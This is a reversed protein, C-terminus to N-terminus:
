KNKVYVLSIKDNYILNWESSNKLYDKLNNKQNNIKEEDLGMIYKDVWNLKIPKQIKLHVLKTKHLKLNRELIEEDFFDYYEQLLTHGRYKYQPLRGDIFLKKEPWAWIMYGGWGYNNFIKPNGFESNNKMFEIAQCPFSKCFLPSTFPDNTYNARILFSATAMLIVIVLYCNIFFNKKNLSLIKQPLAFETSLFQIMLPLSVMFLLPFHRKSKFALFLFLVTLLLYWLDIKHRAINKTHGKNKLFRYSSYILLLIIATVAASFLLQKYQIPYYYVPLWEAILKMYFTNTYESLFSYLKLGYPNLLTMGFSLLSFGFFISIKKWSIMNEFDILHFFKYKVLINELIKVFIWFALIFLGILFSAHANAWIFFLPLLWFLIKPNKNKNYCYIIILLLLMNLLAIEQMRVGLHPAMGIIGFLQFLMIFIDVSNKAYKKIFHTQIILIAIVLLAFFINLAVYGFGDYIKFTILNLLWEHDIWTKGELTYNFRELSPASKEEIIQEGVRLHWGLDNDM